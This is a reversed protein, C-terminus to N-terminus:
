RRASRGCNLRRPPPTGDGRCGRSGHGHGARAVIVVGAIVDGAAPADAFRDSREICMPAGGVGRGAPQGRRDVRHGVLRGVVRDRPEERPERLGAPQALPQTLRQAEEGGIREGARREARGAAPLTAAAAKDEGFAAAHAQREVDVGGRGCRRRVRDEDGAAGRDAHEDGRARGETEM